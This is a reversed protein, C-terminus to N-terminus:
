LLPVFVPHQPMRSPTCLTVSSSIDRKVVQLKQLQDTQSREASVCLFTETSYSTSTSSSSPKPPNHLSEATRAGDMQFRYEDTYSTTNLGSSAEICSAVVTDTRSM